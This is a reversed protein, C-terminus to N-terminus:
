CGGSDVEYIHIPMDGKRPCNKSMKGMWSNLSFVYSIIRAGPKLDKLLKSKYAGNFSSTLAYLYVVDADSLDIKLANGRVMRVNRLPQILGMLKNWLYLPHVIEVGVVKAKPNKAGIYRCVRGDGCGLDYFTDGPKLSAIRNIRELDRTRTPLYPAMYIKGILFSSILLIAVVFLFTLAFISLLVPTGM